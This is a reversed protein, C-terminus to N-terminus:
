GSWAGNVNILQGQIYSADSSTLFSVLAAVEGPTGFRGLPIEEQILDQDEGQIHSNMKTDIFGPRIGNVHIGSPAVEKALSKVFSDQAGKVSSYIVECSAGVEGWISSVLVIHGSKRSIMSPLLHKTVVWPTKVHLHYMEDMEKSEVDQYMKVLNKGGAFIVVDIHFPLKGCFEDIGNSTSLDAQISQLITQPPLEENLDAIAQENHQYHLILNYEKESFQKAIAKGISGSAGVILCVHQM